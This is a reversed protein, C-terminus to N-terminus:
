PPPPRAGGPHSIVSPEHSISQASSYGIEPYCVAQGSTEGEPSSNDATSDYVPHRFDSGGEPSLECTYPRLKEGGTTSQGSSEVELSRSPALSEEVTDREANCAPLVTFPNGPPCSARAGHGLDAAGAPEDEQEWELEDSVRHGSPDPRAIFYPRDRDDYADLVTPTITFQKWYPLRRAKAYYDDIAGQYTNGAGYGKDEFQQRVAPPLHAVVDFHPDYRPPSSPQHIARPAPPCVSKDASPRCVTTDAGGIRAPFGVTESKQLAGFVMGLNARRESLWQDMNHTIWQRLRERYGEGTTSGDGCDFPVRSLANLKPHLGLVEAPGPPYLGASSGAVAVPLFRGRRDRAPAAQERVSAGGLRYFWRGLLRCV